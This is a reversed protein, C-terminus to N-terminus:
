CVVISRPSRGHARIEGARKLEKLHADVTSTSRVGVASAIERVTPAYENRALYDCIYAFIRERTDCGRRASGGTAPSYKM